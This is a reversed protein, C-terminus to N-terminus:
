QLIFKTFPQYIENKILLIQHFHLQIMVLTTMHFFTLGSNTNPHCGIKMQPLMASLLRLNLDLDRETGNNFHCLFIFLCSGFLFITFVRTLIRFQEM